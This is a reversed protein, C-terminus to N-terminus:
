ILMEFMERNESWFEDLLIMREKLFSIARPWSEQQFINVSELSAKMASMLKNNKVTEEYYIWEAAPHSQQWLQSFTHYILKRKDTETIGFEVWVEACQKTFDMTFRIHKIGSKYNVWNVTNGSASPVPAMYQGFRTWFDSRIKSLEASTYM